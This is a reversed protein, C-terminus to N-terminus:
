KLGRFDSRSVRASKISQVENELTTLFSTMNKFDVIDILFTEAITQTKLRDLYTYNIELQFHDKMKEYSYEGNTFDVRLFNDFNDCIVLPYRVISTDKTWESFGLSIPKNFWQEYYIKSNLCQTMAKYVVDEKNANTSFLKAVKENSLYHFKDHLIDGQYRGNNEHLIRLDTDRELKALAGTVDKEDFWFVIEQKIYKCEIFLQVNVQVSSEIGRSSSNFQKEAVVDIERISNAINDYYYPAILVSWGQNRLTEIVKHHTIMGSEEILKETSTKNEM